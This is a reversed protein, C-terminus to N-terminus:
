QIQKLSALDLIKINRGNIEILGEKNFHSLTRILSETAIGAVSALDNRSIKIQDQKKPNMKEAFQLITAATKKRVSGYAMQLLQEKMESLNDSLLEFLELTVKHNKQLVNKLEEKIIGALDCNEVATASEQYTINQLLSAYGFLDDEKLLSTTLEKGNEDIKHTKVIGKKLLFIYNSNKGQQFIIEGKKFHFEKGHDDVFNKLDNLTHLDGDKEDVIPKNMRQDHLISTKALRSEIANLLDEENFPKTLYDDAGLDMGIRIDKYETKASLFIFPIFQTSPESALSKLVAYGDMEPMMIDCIIIDPLERKAIMVGIKGNPATVVKYGSLEIIEATNERVATDDEILLVKKM